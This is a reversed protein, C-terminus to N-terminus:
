RRKEVTHTWQVSPRTAEVQKARQGRARCQRGRAVAKEDEEAPGCWGGLTGRVKLKREEM